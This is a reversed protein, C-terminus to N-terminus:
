HRDRGKSIHSYILSHMYELENVNSTITYLLHATTSSEVVQWREWVSYKEKNESWATFFTVRAIIFLSSDSWMANCM